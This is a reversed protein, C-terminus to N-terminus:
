KSKAKVAKVEAATVASAKNGFSNRVFTLVDAVEQDTLHPHAPMPNHYEEGDIEIPDSLGNVVIQILENKPGLVWKTKILPPNLRQVGTGNVQHCPQCEKEYVKKGREMSQKLGGQRPSIDLDPERRAAGAPISREDSARRPRDDQTFGLMFLACLVSALFLTRFRTM